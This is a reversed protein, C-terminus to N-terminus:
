HRRYLPTLNAGEDKTRRGHNAADVTTTIHGLYHDPIVHHTTVRLTSRVSTFPPTLSDKGPVTTIRLGAARSVDVVDSYKTYPHEVLLSVTQEQSYGILTSLATGHYIFGLKHPVDQRLTVVDEITTRSSPGQNTTTTKPIPMHTLSAGEVM